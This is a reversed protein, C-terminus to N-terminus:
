RASGSGCTEAHQGRRSAHGHGRAMPVVRLKSGHLAGASLVSRRRRFARQRRCRTAASSRSRPYISVKIPQTPTSPVPPMPGGSHQERSPLARASLFLPGHALMALLHARVTCTRAIPTSSSLATSLHVTSRDPDVALATRAPPPWDTLLARPSPSCSSRCASLPPYRQRHPCHARAVPVLALQEDRRSSRRGPDFGLQVALPFPPASASRAGAGAM